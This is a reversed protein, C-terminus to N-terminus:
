KLGKEEIMYNSITDCILQNLTIDKEHAKLSLQIFLEQSLEINTIDIEECDDKKSSILLIAKERCENCLKGEECRLMEEIVQQYKEEKNKMKEIHNHLDDVETRLDRLEHHIQPGCFASPKSGLIEHKKNNHIISEEIDTYTGCCCRGM